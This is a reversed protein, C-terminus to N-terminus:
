QDTGKMSCYQFHEEYSTYASPICSDIAIGYPVTVSKVIEEWVLIFLVNM